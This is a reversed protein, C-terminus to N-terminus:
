ILIVLAQLKIFFLYQNPKQNMTSSYPLAWKSYSLMTCHFCDCVYPWRHSTAEGPGTGANLGVNTFTPSGSGEALGCKSKNMKYTVTKGAYIYTGYAHTSEYVLVPHWVRSSSNFIIILWWTSLQKDKSRTSFAQKQSSGVEAAQHSFTTRQVGM